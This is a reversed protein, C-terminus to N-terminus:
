ESTENRAEDLWSPEEVTTENVDSINMSFRLETRQDGGDSTGHITMSHILGQEDVLITANYDTLSASEDTTANSGDAELVVLTTGDVERVGTPTFNAVSGFQDIYSAGSYSSPLTKIADPTRDTAQYEHEGDVTARTYRKEPTLYLSQQQDAGTSDIRINDRDEGVVAHTQITQNTGSQNLAYDIDLTFSRNELAASHGEALESVNTTNESIGEPYTVDEPTPGDGGGTLGGTCGALVVLCSIAFLQISLRRM